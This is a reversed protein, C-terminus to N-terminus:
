FDEQLISLSNFIGLVKVFARLPQTINAALFYRILIHIPNVYFTDVYAYM